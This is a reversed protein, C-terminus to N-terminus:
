ERDRGLSLQVPSFDEDVVGVVELSVIQANPGDDGSDDDDDEENDDNAYTSGGQFDPVKSQLKIDETLGLIARTSITFGSDAV